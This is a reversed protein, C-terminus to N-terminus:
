TTKECYLNVAHRPLRPQKMNIAELSNNKVLYVNFGLSALQNVFEQRTIGTKRLCFPNYEIILKLTPLRAALKRMGNLARPEGGEIDMKILSIEPWKEKEFFDDLTVIDVTVSDGSTYPTEVLSHYVSIKKSVRLSDIGRTDSVAKPVLMTNIFNNIELNRKLAAINDPAPEFAYVKGSPGVLHAGLLTFYGIHAGVDVFTMGTDIHKRILEVTDREYDGSIFDNILFTPAGGLDMKLGHVESIGRTAPTYAARRIMRSVPEFLFEQFFSIRSIGLFNMIKGLALYTKWIVEKFWTM